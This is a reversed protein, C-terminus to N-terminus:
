KPPPSSRGKKELLRQIKDSKDKPKDVLSSNAADNLVFPLGQSPYRASRRRGDMAAFIEPWNPPMMLEGDKEFADAFTKACFAILRARNTGLRKAASDLRPLWDEPIRVPIPKSAM